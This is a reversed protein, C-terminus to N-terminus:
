ILMSLRSRRELPYRPARRRVSSLGSIEVATKAAIGGWIRLGITVDDPVCM